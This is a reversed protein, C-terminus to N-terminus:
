TEPLTPLCPCNLISDYPQLAVEMNIEPMVPLGGLEHRLEGTSQLISDRIEEARLRRRPFKGLYLNNPDLEALKDEEHHRTSRKYTASHM